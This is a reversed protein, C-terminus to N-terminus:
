IMMIAMHTSKILPQKLKPQAITVTHENGSELQETFEVCTRILRNFV